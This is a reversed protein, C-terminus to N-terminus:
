RSFTEPDAHTRIDEYILAIECEPCQIQNWLKNDLEIKIYKALCDTCTSPYHLCSQSIRTPRKTIKSFDECCIICSRAVEGEILAQPTASFKEQARFTPTLNALGSIKQECRSSSGKKKRPMMDGCINEGSDFSIISLRASEDRIIRAPKVIEQEPRFSPKPAIGYQPGFLPLEASGYISPLSIRNETTTAGNQQRFMQIAGKGYVSPSNIPFDPEVKETPAPRKTYSEFSQYNVPPGGPIWGSMKTM